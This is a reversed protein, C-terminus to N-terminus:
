DLIVSTSVMASPNRIYQQELQQFKAGMLLTLATASTMKANYKNSIGTIMVNQLVVVDM